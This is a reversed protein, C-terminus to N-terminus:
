FVFILFSFMLKFFFCVFFVDVWMGEPPSTVMAGNGCFLSFTAVFGNGDDNNLTKM